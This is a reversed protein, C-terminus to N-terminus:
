STIQLLLSVSFLSASNVHSFDSFCPNGYTNKKKKQHPTTQIQQYVLKTHYILYNQKGHTYNKVLDQGTLFSFADCFSSLSWEKRDWVCDLLYDNVNLPM